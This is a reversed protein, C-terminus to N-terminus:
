VGGEREERRRKETEIQSKLHPFFFTNGHFATVCLSLSNMKREILAIKEAFDKPYDNGEVLDITKEQETM